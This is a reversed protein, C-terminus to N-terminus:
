SVGEQVQTIVAKCKDRLIEIRKEQEIQQIRSEILERMTHMSEMIEKVIPDSLYEAFNQTDLGINDNM